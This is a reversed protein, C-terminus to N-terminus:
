RSLQISTPEQSYTAEAEGIGPVGAGAHRAADSGGGFTGDCIM